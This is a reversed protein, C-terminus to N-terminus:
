HLHARVVVRLHCSQFGVTAKHLHKLLVLKQVFALKSEKNVEALAVRFSNGLQYLVASKVNVLIVRFGLDIVLRLM